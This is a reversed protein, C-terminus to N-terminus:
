HRVAAQQHRLDKGGGEARRPGQRGPRAPSATSSSWRRARRSTSAPAIASRTSPGRNREVAHHLRAARTPCPDGPFPRLHMAEAGQQAMGPCQLVLVPSSSRMAGTEYAAAGRSTRRRASCVPRLIGAERPTVDDGGGAGPPRSPKRHEGAPARAGGTEGREWSALHRRDQPGLVAVDLRVLDAPDIDIGITDYLRGLAAQMNSYSEYRRLSSAVVGRRRRDARARKAGRRRDPQLGPRLHRRRGDGARPRPAYEKGADLYQQYALHLKTLVAMAVAQRQAEVLKVSGQTQKSARAGTLLSMLNWSVRLAGEAWWRNVLFSNTDYQPGYHLQHRAAPAPDVQAGRQRQHADPLQARAPRSQAGPRGARAARDAADLPEYYLQADPPIDLVIDQGPPLNILSALETKAIMLRHRVEELQRLLDLLTRQYRLADVPSRLGRKRGQALDGLAAESRRSAATSRPALIQAAAARWYASRVDRMLNQAVKRRREAAILVRDASQRAAFYSVGFDLINWSFNLGTVGRNSDTSTSPELSQTGTLVSTSSQALVNSRNLYGADATLRPLMDMNAVGLGDVAVAEEMLKVRRELNYKVAREYAEAAVASSRAADQGRVDGQPRTAGRDRREGDTLPKPQVVCGALL